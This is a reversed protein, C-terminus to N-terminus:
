AGSVAASVTSAHCGMAEVARRDSDVFADWLDFLGMSNQVIRCRDSGTRKDEAGPLV